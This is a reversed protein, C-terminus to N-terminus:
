MQTFDMSSFLAVRASCFRLRMGKRHEAGSHAPSTQPMLLSHRAAPLHSGALDPRQSDSSAATKRCTSSSAKLTRGVVETLKRGMRYSQSLGARQLAILLQSRQVFRPINSIRVHHSHAVVVTHPHYRYLPSQPSTFTLYTARCPNHPLFDLGM